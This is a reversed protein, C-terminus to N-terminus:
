SLLWGIQDSVLKNWRETSPYDLIFYSSWIVKGDGYQNGMSTCLKLGDGDDLYSTGVGDMVPISVSEGFRLVEVDHANRICSGPNVISSNYIYKGFYIPLSQPVSHTGNLYLPASGTFYVRGGSKIYNELQDRFKHILSFSNEAFILCRYKEISSLDDQWFLNYNLSSYPMLGPKKTLVLIRNYQNNKDYKLEFQGESFDFEDWDWIAVNCSGECGPNPNPNYVEVDGGKHQFEMISGSYINIAYEPDDFRGFNQIRLKGGSYSLEVDASYGNPYKFVYDRVEAVYRGEPLNIKGPNNYFSTNNLKVLYKYVLKRQPALLPMLEM